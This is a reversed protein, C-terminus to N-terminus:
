IDFNLFSLLLQVGLLTPLAALMVTGASATTGVRNSSAWEIAGFVVGFALFLLGLLLEASAINFDKLFYNYFIRKALNTTNRALFEPLVRAVRLGSQEDGYRAAMPIDCVVAGITNLRFLMDSEFFYRPNV